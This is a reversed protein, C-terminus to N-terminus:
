SLMTPTEELLAADVFLDLEKVYVMAEERTQIAGNATMVMMPSRSTRMTELESFDYDKTSVVPMSAGAVVFEREPETANAPGRGGTEGRRRPSAWSNSPGLM